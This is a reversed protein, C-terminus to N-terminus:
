WFGVDTHPRGIELVAGTYSLNNSTATYNSLM